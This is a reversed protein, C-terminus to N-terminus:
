CKHKITYKTSGDYLLTKFCDFRTVFGPIVDHLGDNQIKAPFGFKSWVDSKIFNSVNKTIFYQKTYISMKLLRELKQAQYHEMNCTSSNSSSANSAQATSLPVNETD